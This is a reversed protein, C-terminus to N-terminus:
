KTRRSKNTEDKTEKEKEEDNIIPNQVAMLKHLIMINKIKKAKIRIGDKNHLYDDPNIKVDESLPEIGCNM